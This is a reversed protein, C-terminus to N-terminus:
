SRGALFLDRGEKRQCLSLLPLDQPTLRVASPMDHYCGCAQEEHAQECRRRQHREIGLSSDGIEDMRLPTSAFSRKAPDLFEGLGFISGEPQCRAFPQKTKITNPELAHLGQRSRM